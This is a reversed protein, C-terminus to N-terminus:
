NSPPPPPPPVGEGRPMGQMNGGRMGPARDLQRALVRRQTADLKAASAALSRHFAAMVADSSLRVEALAADLAAADVTEARILEASKKRAAALDQLAKNMAPREAQFADRLAQRTEQDGRQDGRAQDRGQMRGPGDNNFPRAIMPRLGGRGGNGILYGIFLANVLLSILLILKIRRETM